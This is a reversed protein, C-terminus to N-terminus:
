RPSDSSRAGQRPPARCAIAYTAQRRGAAPDPHKGSAPAQRLGMEIESRDRRAITRGIEAVDPRASIGRAIVGIEPRLHQRVVGILPELLVASQRPCVAVPQPAHHKDRPFVSSRASIYAAHRPRAGLTSAMSFSRPRASHARAPAICATRRLPERHDDSGVTQAGRWGDDRRHPRHRGALLHTRTGRLSGPVASDPPQANSGVCGAPPQM